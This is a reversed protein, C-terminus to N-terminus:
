FRRSLGAFLTLDPAARSIGWFVGGDLQLNPGLRRTVGTNFTAVHPGDGAASTLEFFASWDAALERAVTLTNFWVARRATGTHVWEIGTMGAGDWGAGIDFAVPLTVAGEVKDNGIGDAATPLKIETIVGYALPGGDNGAGNWKLRLTTDGVGRATQRDGAPGTETRRVHPVVVIGAEVSGALGYRLNWPAITWETTRVGGARDRSYSVADLEVQVRGPEVTFPSETADPRDTTLERRGGGAPAGAASAQAVLGWDLAAVVLWLVPRPSRLM